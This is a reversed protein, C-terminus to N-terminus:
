NQGISFPPAEVGILDSNSHVRASETEKTPQSATHGQGNSGTIPTQLM